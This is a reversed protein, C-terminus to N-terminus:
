EAELNELHEGIFVTGWFDDAADLAITALDGTIAVVVGAGRETIVRSNIEIM